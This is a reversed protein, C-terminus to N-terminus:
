PPLFAWPNQPVDKQRIEFHLHPPEGSQGLVSGIVDGTLVIEQCSVHVEALYAYVTTMDAGHEIVITNGLGYDAEGAFIVRGSSAAWVDEGVEGAIDIGWHTSQYDQGSLYHQSLPWTFKTEDLTAISLPDNSLSIRLEQGAFLIPNAADLDNLEIISQISVNYKDAIFALTDNQQVKYITSGSQCAGLGTIPYIVTGSTPSPNPTNTPLQSIGAGPSDWNIHQTADNNILMFSTFVVIAILGLASTAMTIKRFM